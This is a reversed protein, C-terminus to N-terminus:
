FKWGYTYRHEKHMFNWPLWFPVNYERPNSNYITTLWWRPSYFRRGKASYGISKVVSGYRCGWTIHIKVSLVCIWVYVSGQLYAKDKSVVVCGLRRYLENELGCSETTSKLFNCLFEWSTKFLNTLRKPDANAIIRLWVDSLWLNPVGVPFRQRAKRPFIKWPTVVM